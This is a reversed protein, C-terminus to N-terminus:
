RIWRKSRRTASYGLVLALAATWLSGDGRGDVACACGSNSGGSAGSGGTGTTLDGGGASGGT